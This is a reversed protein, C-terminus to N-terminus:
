VTIEVNPIYSIEQRLAPETHDKLQTNLRDVVSKMAVSPKGAINQVKYGVRHKGDTIGKLEATVLKVVDGYRPSSYPVSLVRLMTDGIPIWKTETFKPLNEKDYGTEAKLAREFPAVVERRLEDVLRATKLYVDAVNESLEGFDYRFPVVVMNPTESRPLEIEQKVTPDKALWGDIKGLLDAAPICYGVGDVLTIDEIEKKKADIRVESVYDVLKDFVDGYNPRRTTPTTVVGFKFRGVTIPTYTKKEPRNEESYGTKTKLADEFPDVVLKGLFNAQRCSRVYNELNENDLGSFPPCMRLTLTELNAM